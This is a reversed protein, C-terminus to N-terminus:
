SDVEVRNVTVHLFTVIPIYEREVQIVALTDRLAEDYHVDVTEDIRDVQGVVAGYVDVQQRLTIDTGAENESGPGYVVGTLNAENNLTATTSPRMYFWVITANDDPADVLVNNQLTLSENVYISVRHNTSTANLVTDEGFEVSDDVYIEVPGQSNNLTLETSDDDYNLDSLYYSGNPLECDDNCTLTDTGDDIDADEDNDNEDSLAESKDSILYDVPDPENVSANAAAWGYIDANSASLSGGYSLNGRVEANPDLNADGGVEANGEIIANNGMDLDGVVTLTTNDTVSVSYPADSSNYSDVVANNDLNLTTGGGSTVGSTVRDREDREVVLEFVVTENEHDYTPNGDTRTEFFSGWAQYYESHITVNVQGNRLPNQYGASANPYRRTTGNKSITTRGSLSRGQGSVSVVPLTLTQGRYHFEPPSIMTSGNGQRRWVGGGQYAVTTDGREYVVKGLSENFVESRLAGSTRNYIRMRIWGGEEVTMEQGRADPPLQVTKAESEGLAVEAFKADMQTMANEANRVQMQDETDRLAQGGFTVIGITGIVVIAVLLVAGIVGSQGRDDSLTCPSRREGSGRSM